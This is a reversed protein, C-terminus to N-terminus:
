VMGHTRCAHPQRLRVQQGIPLCQAMRGGAVQCYELGDDLEVCDTALTGNADFPLQCPVAGLASSGGAPAAAMRVAPPCQVWAGAKPGGLKQFVAGALQVAVMPGTVAEPADPQACTTQRLPLSGLPLCELLRRTDSAVCQEVGADTVV